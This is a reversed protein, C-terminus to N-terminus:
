RGREWLTRCCRTKKALVPERSAPFYLTFRTGFGSESRVDIFGKHDKLSGWVVSMGLGTGSRGLIKNTYFPEFIRKIEAPSMGIGNDAVSIVAYEGAPITEYGAYEKEFFRNETVITLKGCAPMAEVANCFLNMLIKTLHVASGRINLLANDLKLEVKIGPVSMLINDHEPSCM